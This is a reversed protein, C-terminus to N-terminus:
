IIWLKYLCEDLFVQPYYKNSEHFIAGVAIIMSHIEITKNLPLEDNFDFRIKMYKEDYDGPHKTILRILDTIKSWFEEYIKIIEKSKNTSVPSLNKNKNIDEVYENFKSIILYLPNVSNIRTYKSDKITM